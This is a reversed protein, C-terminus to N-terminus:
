PESRTAHNTSIRVEGTPSALRAARSDVWGVLLPRLILTLILTSPLVVLILLVLFSAFGYVGAARLVPHITGMRWLAGAWARFCYSALLEPVVLWRMVTVAPEGALLSSGPARSASIRAGVVAGLRRIRELDGSSTGAAPFIGLLRDRKGFLLARPTSILTALASGQHTVVVNDTHRAGATALLGKVLESARQWMARSVTITLVDTDRLVAAHESRLFGQLAPAPSLFWVPYAVVALDFRTRPEFDPTQIEAPLGLVSEPMADFFRRVSRWPYPYSAVPSIPAFTLEHGCAELEVAFAEVARAVEGSQSYYIVLIRSVYDPGGTSRV